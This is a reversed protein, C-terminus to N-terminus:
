PLAAANADPEPELVTDTYSRIVRTEGEEQRVVTTVRTIVGRQRDIRLHLVAKDEPYTLVAEVERDLPIDGVPLLALSDVQESILADGFLLRAIPDNRLEPVNSSALVPGIQREVAEEGPRSIVLKDGQTAIELGVMGMASVSLSFQRPRRFDLKWTLAPAPKEAPPDTEVQQEMTYSVRRAERYARSIEEVVRKVQKEQETYVRPPITYHEIHELLLLSNGNKPSITVVRSNEKDGIFVTVEGTDKDTDRRAGKGLARLYFAAVEEMGQAASFRAYAYRLMDRDKRDRVRFVGSSLLEGDQWVPMGLDAETASDRYLQTVTGYADTYVTEKGTPVAPADEARGPASFASLWLACVLMGVLRHSIM